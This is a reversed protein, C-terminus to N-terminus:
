VALMLLEREKPSPRPSAKRRVNPSLHPSAKWEGSRKKQRLICITVSNYDGNKLQKAGNEYRQM